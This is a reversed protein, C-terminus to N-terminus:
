AELWFSQTQQHEQGSFCAKVKNQLFYDCNLNCDCYQKSFDYNSTKRQDNLGELCVSHPTINLEHTKLKIKKKFTNPRVKAFDQIYM